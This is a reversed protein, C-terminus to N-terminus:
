LPHRHPLVFFTLRKNEKIFHKDKSIQGVPKESRMITVTVKICHPIAVVIGQRNFKWQSRLVTLVIKTELFPCITKIVSVTM